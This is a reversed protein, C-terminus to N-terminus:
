AGTWVLAVGPVEEEAGQLMWGERWVTGWAKGLGGLWVVKRSRGLGKAAWQPGEIPLVSGPDM